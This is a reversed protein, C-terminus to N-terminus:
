VVHVPTGVKGFAWMFQADLMHQRQCGGSLKEGLQETTQYPEGTDRHNPIGHFGIAGRETDLWRVMLPLTAEGNWATTTESRSYVKHLGPVENRYQSGTVLYSRVVQEADNVAWVRQMARSYVIRYGTGQGTDAPMEPADSGASAVPSLAMGWLDKAGAPPRPTRVIFSDDGPWIGLETATRAGVIGDVYLGRDAQAQRVAVDTADDFMGTFEGDYFGNAYLAKQTCVVSDGETGLKIEIVALTCGELDVSPRVAVAEVVGPSVAALTSDAAAPDAPNADPTADDVGEPVDAAAPAQTPEAAVVSFQGDDSAGGGVFVAILAVLVVVGGLLFLPRRNVPRPAPRPTHTRQGARATRLGPDLHPTDPHRGPM